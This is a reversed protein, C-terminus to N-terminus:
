MINSLFRNTRRVLGLRSGGLDFHCTPWLRIFSALFHILSFVTKQVINRAPRRTWAHRAASHRSNAKPRELTIVARADQNASNLRQTRIPTYALISQYDAHSSRDIACMCTRAAVPLSSSHMRCLSPLNSHTLILACCVVMYLRMIYLALCALYASKVVMQIGPSLLLQCLKSSTKSLSPPHPPGTMKGSLSEFISTEWLRGNLRDIFPWLKVVAFPHRSSNACTNSVAKQLTQIIWKCGWLVSDGIKYFLVLSITTQVAHFSGRFNM